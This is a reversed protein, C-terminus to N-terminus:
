RRSRRRSRAIAVFDFAPYAARPPRRGPQIPASVGSRRPLLADLHGHELHSLHRELADETRPPHLDIQSEMAIM